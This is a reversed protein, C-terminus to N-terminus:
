FHVTILVQEVELLPILDRALAGKELIAALSLRHVLHYVQTALSNCACVSHIGDESQPVWLASCLELDNSRVLCEM